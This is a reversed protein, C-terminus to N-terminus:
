VNKLKIDPNMWLFLTWFRECIFTHYPYYPVGIAEQLYYRVSQRKSKHYKADKWLTGKVYEDDEMVRMCPYLVEEYYQHWVHPKAIVYNSFINKTGDKVKRFDFYIGARNLITEFLDVYGEHWKEAQLIINQNQSKGNFAIVDLAPDLHQALLQPTNVRHAKNFFVPSLVGFWEGEHNKNQSLLDYIVSNEFFATLKDSNDYLKFGDWCMGRSKADYHIQYINSLISLKNKLLEM